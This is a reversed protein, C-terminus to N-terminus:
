KLQFGDRYKVASKYEVYFDLDVKLVIGETTGWTLRKRTIKVIKFINSHLYVPQMQIKYTGKKIKSFFNNDRCWLWYMCELKIKYLLDACKCVPHECDIEM